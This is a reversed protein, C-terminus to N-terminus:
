GPTGASATNLASRHAPRQRYTRRQRWRVGPAQNQARWPTRVCRRTRAAMRACRGAARWRYFKGNNGPVSADLACFLTTQVVADVRTLWLVPAPKIRKVLLTHAGARRVMARDYGADQVSSPLLLEPRVTACFATYPKNAGM